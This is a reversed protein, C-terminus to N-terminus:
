QEDRHQCDLCLPADPRVQLRAFNIGQDCSSCYGYDGEEMRQLAQVVRKLQAQMQSRNAQAMQQQQMADMRSLRGLLQQDLTVPRSDDSNRLLRERLDLRLAELSHRLGALQDESLGAESM